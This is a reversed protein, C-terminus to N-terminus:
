YESGPKVGPMRLGVLADNIARQNVHGLVDDDVAVIGPYGSLDREDWSHGMMVEHQNIEGKTMFIVPLGEIESERKNAEIALDFLRDDDGDVGRSDGILVHVIKIVRGDPLNLLSIGIDDVYAELEPLDRFIDDMGDKIGVIQEGKM